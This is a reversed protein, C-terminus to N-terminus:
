LPSFAAQPPASTVAVNDLVLKATCRCPELEGRAEREGRAELLLGQPELSSTHWGCTSSKFLPVYSTANVTWHSPVYESSTKSYPWGTLPLGKVTAAVAARSSSLPLLWRETGGCVKALCVDCEVCTLAKIKNLHIINLIKLLLQYISLPLLYQM